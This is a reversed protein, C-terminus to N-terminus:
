VEPKNKYHKIGAFFIGLVFLIGLGGDIPAGAPPQNNGGGHGGAPLPPPDASLDPIFIGVLLFAMCLFTKRFTKM